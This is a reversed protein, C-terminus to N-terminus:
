TETVCCCRALNSNIDGDVSNKTLLSPEDRRHHLNGPSFPTTTRLTDEGGVNTVQLAAEMHLLNPEKTRHDPSLRSRLTIDIHQHFELPALCRKLVEEGKAIVELGQEVPPHIKHRHSSQTGEHSRIDLVLHGPTFFSLTNRPWIWSSTANRRRRVRSFSAFSIWDSGTSERATTQLRSIMPSATFCSEGSNRARYGWYGHSFIVPM